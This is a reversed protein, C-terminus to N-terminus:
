NTEDVGGHPFPEERGLAAKSFSVCYGRHGCRYICSDFLFSVGTTVRHFRGTVQIREKAWHWASYRLLNGSGVVTGLLETGAVCCDFCSKGEVAMTTKISNSM